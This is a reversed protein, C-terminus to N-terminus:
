LKLARKLSEMTFPKVIIGSFGYEEYNSMIPDNSYGSSVIVKADPNIELIKKVVEKGGMGGPVTLDLIVFDFIKGANFYEKYKNIAEEGNYSIEVESFGLEKLMKSLVKVVIKQDDMILIRGGGTFVEEKESHEESVTEEASPLYLHFVTGKGLESYVTIHGGHQKVISFSVALGLGSGKQKTTFFPDFIRDLYKEPIGVGHDRISIKVYKGPKLPLPHNKEILFNEAGVELIGGEPMADRANLVLNNIVQSIQGPDVEVNYLNEDISFLPKLNSGRLAFSVWQRLFPKIDIVKKVPTGGKSFTLLQNTLSKASFAIQEADSIIEYLKDDPKLHMKALSLNGVIGMLINNFDHAIGGALLGISELKELRQLEKRIKLEETVDKVFGLIQTEEENSILVTDLELDKIDGDKTVIKVQYRSPIDKKNRRAKFRKDIIKKTEETFLREINFEPSTLEEFSYGTIKCFAPNVYEFHKGKLLYIGQAMNELLMEYLKERERLLNEIMISELGASIEKAVIDIIKREDESLIKKGKTIFQMVGIIKGRTYLPVSYIQNLDFEEVLDHLYETLPSQKMNEVFVPKKEEVTKLWVAIDPKEKEFREEMKEMFNPPFSNNRCVSIFEGKIKVSIEGHDFDVVKNLAELIKKSTLKYDKFEIFSRAVINNIENILSISREIRKKNTVDLITGQFAPMGEYFIRGGRVEVDILTGDKKVLQVRFDRSENNQLDAITNKNKIREWEHPPLFDKISRGIVEEPKEYGLIDLLKKNCFKVVFKQSVFIGVPSNEILNYYKSREEMIEKQRSKIDTIDRDYIIMFILNGNEDYVRKSKRLVFIKRGDKRVIEIEGEIVGKKMLGHNKEYFIHKSEESFFDSIHRGVVEYKEYGTLRLYVDNCDIIYGEKNIITVGDPNYSYINKFRVNGYPSFETIEKEGTIDIGVCNFKMKNGAANLKRPFILVLLSLSTNRFPIQFISVFKKKQKAQTYVHVVDNYVDPGYIKRFNKNKYYEINHGFIKCFNEDVNEYYYEGNDYIVSWHFIFDNGPLYIEKM